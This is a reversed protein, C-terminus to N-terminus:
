GIKYIPYEKPDFVWENKSAERPVDLCSNRMAQDVVWCRRGLTLMVRVPFIAKNLLYPTIKPSIYFMYLNGKILGAMLGKNRLANSVKAFYVRPNSTPYYPPSIHATFVPWKYGYTCPHTKSSIPSINIKFIVGLWTYLNYCCIFFPHFCTMETPFQQALWILFYSWLLRCTICFFQFFINSFGIIFSDTLLLKQQFMRYFAGNTM